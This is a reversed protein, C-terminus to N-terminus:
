SERGTCRPARIERGAATAIWAADAAFGHRRFPFPDTAILM